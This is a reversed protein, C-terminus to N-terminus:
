FDGLIMWESTLNIPLFVWKYCSELLVEDNVVKVTAVLFGTTFCCSRAGVVVSEPTYGEWSSPQPKSSHTAKEEELPNELGLSGGEEGTNGQRTLCIRQWQPM